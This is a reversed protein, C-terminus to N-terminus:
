GMAKAAQHKPACFFGGGLIKQGVEDLAAPHFAVAEFGPRVKECVADGRAKQAEPVLGFLGPQDWGLVGRSRVLQPPQPAPKGGRSKVACLYGGAAIVVGEADKAQPHYGVAELDARGMLCAADGLVKHAATIKGFAQPRNWEYVVRGNADQQNGVVLKPPETDPLEGVQPSVACSSLATCAILVLSTQIKQM